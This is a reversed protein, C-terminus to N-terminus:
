SSSGHQSTRLLAEVTRRAQDCRRAALRTAAAADHLHALADAFREHSPPSATPWMVAARQYRRCVGQDRSEAAPVVRVGSMALASGAARLAETLAELEGPLSGLPGEHGARPLATAALRLEDAAVSNTREFLMAM